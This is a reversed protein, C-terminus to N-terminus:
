LLPQAPLARRVGPRRHAARREQLRVVAILVTLPAQASDVADRVWQRLVNPHLGSTDITIGETQIPAMTDREREIAEALTFPTAPSGHASPWRRTESFRHILTDTAANLFLLRV